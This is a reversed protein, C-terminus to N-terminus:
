EDTLFAINEIGHVKGLSWFIDDKDKGKRKIKFKSAFLPDVPLGDAM